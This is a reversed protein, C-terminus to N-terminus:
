VTNRGPEAQGWWAACQGVRNVVLWDIWVGFGTWVWRGTWLKRCWITGWWCLQASAYHWAREFLGLERRCVQEGGVRWPVGRGCVRQECVPHSVWLLLEETGDALLTAQSSHQSLAHHGPPARGTGPDAHRSPWAAPLQSHQTCVCSHVVITIKSLWQTCESACRLTCVISYLTNLGEMASTRSWCCGLIIVSAINSSFHLHPGESGWTNMFYYNMNHLENLQM